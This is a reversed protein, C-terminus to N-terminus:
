LRNSGPGNPGTKRTSIRTRAPARGRCDLAHALYRNEFDYDTPCAEPITPQALNKELVNVLVLVVAPV